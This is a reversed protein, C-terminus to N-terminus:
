VHKLKLIKSIDIPKKYFIGRFIIYILFFPSMVIIMILFLLRLLITNFNLKVDKKGDGYLENITNITKTAKCNCGM